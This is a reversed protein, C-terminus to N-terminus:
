LWAIWCAHINIDRASRHIPLIARKAIVCLFHVDYRLQEMLTCSYEAIILDIRRGWIWLVSRSDFKKSTVLHCIHAAFLFLKQLAKPGNEVANIGSREVLDELSLYGVQMIQDELM